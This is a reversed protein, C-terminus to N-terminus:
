PGWNLTPSTLTKAMRARGMRHEAPFVKRRAEASTASNAIEGLCVARRDGKNALIGAYSRLFPEVGDAWASVRHRRESLICRFYVVFCQPGSGGLM